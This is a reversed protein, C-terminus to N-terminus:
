NEKKAVFFVRESEKKPKNFSLEDYVGCLALGSKKIIEKIEDIGYAREVHLEDFRLYRGDTGNEAFFTMQYENIREEKCYYNGWIFASDERAEAFTNDALIKEFKYETNIDFIFLGGGNLYLNVLKFVKLLENKDLIYNVSDCLCVVADVTGYLEFERMDQCIYLIGNNKSKAIGLMEPSIDLGIMDYGRSNLLVTMNGTGCCLDLAIGPKLGFRDWIKEIYDAWEIYPIGDMFKDYVAAFGKSLDM